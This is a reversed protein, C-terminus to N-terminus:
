LVVLDDILELALELILDLNLNSSNQTLNNQQDKTKKLNM